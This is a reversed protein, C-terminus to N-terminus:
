AAGRDRQDQATPRFHRRIVTAQFEDLPAWGKKVEAFWAEEVPSFKPREM